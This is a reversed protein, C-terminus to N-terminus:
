SSRNYKGIVLHAKQWEKRALVYTRPPNYQKVTWGQTTFKVLRKILAYRTGDSAERLFLCDDGPAVNTSPNVLLLNGREYAPEMSDGSVFCGYAEAVGDLRTDRPIWAVPESSLIMAGEAGGQASSFVQLAPRSAALSAAEARGAANAAGSGRRGLLELLGPQEPVDEVVAKRMKDGRNIQLWTLSVGLAQALQVISKPETEGRREIQAIGGQTIRYGAHTVRRALEVQSWGRSEREAKVREGLTSM